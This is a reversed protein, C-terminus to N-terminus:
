DLLGNPRVQPDDHHRRGQICGRDCSVETTRDHAALPPAEVDRDLVRLTGVAPQERILNGGGHAPESGGLATSVHEGEQGSCRLDLFRALGDRLDGRVAPQEHQRQVAIQRGVLLVTNECGALTALHDERGVDGFRADRHGAHRRHDVAPDRSNRRVRGPRPQGAQLDRLDAAGGRRLPGAARSAGSGPPRHPEVRTRIVVSAGLVERRLHPPEIESFDRELQAGASVIRHAQGPEVRGSGRRELRGILQQASEPRDVGLSFRRLDAAAARLEREM